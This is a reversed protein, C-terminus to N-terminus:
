EDMKSVYADLEKDLDEVTVDTPKTAGGRGRGRGRIGGVGRGRGSTTTRQGQGNQVRADIGNSQQALALANVGPGVFAIKMPRGDLPVNNYQKLARIADVRREFTIEASGLSRGSRDYHVSAKRLPGFEGFLEEIDADSVNYDLNNVLVKATANLSGATRLGGGGGGGRGGVGDYRDHQWKGDPVIRTFGVNGNRAGGGRALYSARAGGGGGGRRGGRGRGGRGRGTKTKAIVDDLSMDM